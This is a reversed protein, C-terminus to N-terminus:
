LIERKSTIKIPGQAPARKRGKEPALFLAKWAAPLCKSENVICWVIRLQLKYFFYDRCIIRVFVVIRVMCRPM